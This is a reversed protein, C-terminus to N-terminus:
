ITVLAAFKEAATHEKKGELFIRCALYILNKEAEDKLACTLTDNSTSVAPVYVLRALEMESEGPWYRLVQHRQGPENEVTSEVIVNDLMAKPKEISGRSWKSRQQREAESGPEILEIVTAKWGQIRLSGFRLFDNPLVILYSGDNDESEERSWEPTSTTNDIITPELLELPLERSLSTAAHVLAQGIESNVDTTFSDTVGTPAIDDLAKRVKGTLTSISQQM